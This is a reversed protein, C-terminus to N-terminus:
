IKKLLLRTVVLVSQVNHLRKMLRMFIETTRSVDGKGSDVIANFADCQKALEKNLCDLSKEGIDCLKEELNKEASVEKSLNEALPFDTFPNFPNIHLSSCEM